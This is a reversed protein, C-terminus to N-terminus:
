DFKTCNYEKKTIWKYLVQLFKCNQILGPKTTINAQRFNDHMLTKKKTYVQTTWLATMLPQPGPGAVQFKISLQPPGDIPLGFSLVKKLFILNQLSGPLSDIIHLKILRRFMSLCYYLCFLNGMGWLSHFPDSVETGREIHIEQMTLQWRIVQM